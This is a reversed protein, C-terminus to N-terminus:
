AFGDAHEIVSVRGQRAATADARNATSRLAVIKQISPGDFGPLGSGPRGTVNPDMGEGSINKGIEDVILVDFEPFLRGISAKATDLLDKEREMIRDAPIIELDMLDDFANELIALGFLVTANPSM